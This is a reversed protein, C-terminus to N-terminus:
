RGMRYVLVNINPLPEGETDKVRGTIVTQASLAYGFFLLLAIYLLKVRM